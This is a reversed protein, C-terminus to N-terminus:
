EYDLLFSEVSTVSRWDILVLERNECAKEVREYQGETMTDADLICAVNDWGLDPNIILVPKM